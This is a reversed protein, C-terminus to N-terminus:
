FYINTIVVFDRFGKVIYRVLGYMKLTNNSIHEIIVFRSGHKVFMKDGFSPNYYKKFGTELFINM